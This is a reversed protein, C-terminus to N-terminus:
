REACPRPHRAFARHPRAAGCGGLPRGLARVRAPDRATRHARARRCPDRAGPRRSGALGGGSQRSGADRAVRRGLRERRGGRAAVARREAPQAAGPDVDRARVCTARGRDDVAAARSRRGGCAGDAYGGQRPLESHDAGPHSRLPRAACAARAAVPRDRATNRRDRGSARDHVARRARRGCAPDRAASGPAQGPVGLATRGARM